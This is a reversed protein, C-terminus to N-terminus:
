KISDPVTISEEKKKQSVRPTKIAKQSGTEISATPVWGTKNKHKGELVRIKSVKLNREIVKIKTRVPLLYIRQDKVMAILTHRQKQKATRQYRELDDRTNGVPGRYETSTKKITPTAGGPPRAISIVPLILAFAIIRLIIKM